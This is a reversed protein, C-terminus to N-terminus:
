NEIEDKGGGLRGARGVRAGKRHLVRAARVGFARAASFV